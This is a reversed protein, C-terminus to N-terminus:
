FTFNIIITVWWQHAPCFGLAKMRNWGTTNQGNTNIGVVLWIMMMMMWIMMLEWILEPADTCWNGPCWNGSCWNGSWLGSWQHMFEWIMIWIMWLAGWIFHMLWTCWDDFADIMLHMLTCWDLGWVGPYYYVTQLRWFVPCWKNTLFSLTVWSFIWLILMRSSSLKHENSWILGWSCSVAKELKTEKTSLSFILPGAVNSSILLPSSSKWATWKQGVMRILSNLNTFSSREVCLELVMMWVKTFRKREFSM